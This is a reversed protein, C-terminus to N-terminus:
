GKVTWRRVPVDTKQTLAMNLKQATGNIQVTEDTLPDITAHLFGQFQCNRSEFGSIQGSDDFQLSQNADIFKTVFEQRFM